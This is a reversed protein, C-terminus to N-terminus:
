ETLEWIDLKEITLKAGRERINLDVNREPNPDTPQHFYCIGNIFLGIEDHYCILDIEMAKAEATRKKIEKELNERSRGSVDGLLEAGEVFPIGFDYSHRNYFGPLGNGSASISSQTGSYFANVQLNLFDYPHPFHHGIRKFRSKESGFVSEPYLTAFTINFDAPMIRYRIGNSQMKMTIHLHINHPIEDSLFEVHDSIGPQSDFVFSEGAPPGPALDNRLRVNSEFISTISDGRKKVARELLSESPWKTEGSRWNRFRDIVLDDFVCNRGAQKQIRQMFDIRGTVALANHLGPIYAWPIEMGEFNYFFTELAKEPGKKSLISFLVQFFDTLEDPQYGAEVAHYMSTEAYQPRNKFRLFATVLLDDWKSDSTGIENRLYALEPRYYGGLSVGLRGGEVQIEQITGEGDRLRVVYPEDILASPIVGGWSNWDNRQILIGGEPIGSKGANSDKPVKHIREGVVPYNAIAATKKASDVAKQLYEINAEHKEFSVLERFPNKAEQAIAIFPLSAGIIGLLAIKAPFLPSRNKKQFDSLPVHNLNMDLRISFARWVTM